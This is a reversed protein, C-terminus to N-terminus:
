YRVKNKNKYYYNVYRVWNYFYIASFPLILLSLIFIRSNLVMLLLFIALNIVIRYIQGDPKMILKDKYIQTSILDSLLYVGMFNLSAIPNCSYLSMSLFSFIVIVSM